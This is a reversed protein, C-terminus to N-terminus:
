GDNSLSMRPMERAFNRGNGSVGQCFFQWREMMVPVPAARTSTLDSQSKNIKSSFQMFYTPM